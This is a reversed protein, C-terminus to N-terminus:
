QESLPVMDMQPLLNGLWSGGFQSMVGGQLTMPGSGPPFKDYASVYNTSAIILQRLKNQCQARRAAERVSQVAPLLLGVLIGIIAIVVLLEVLTFGQRRTHSDNRM